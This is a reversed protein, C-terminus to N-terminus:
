KTEESFSFLCSLLFSFFEFLLSVTPSTIVSRKRERETPQPSESVLSSLSLVLYRGHIVIFWLARPFKNEKRRPKLLWWTSSRSLSLIFRVKLFSRKQRLYIRLKDKRKSNINSFLLFLSCIFSLPPQSLLLLRPFFFVLSLKWKSVSFRKLGNPVLDANLRTMSRGFLRNLYRLSSTM